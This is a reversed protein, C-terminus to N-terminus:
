EDAGEDVAAGGGRLESIRCLSSLHCFKCTGPKKPDVSANGAAFGRGLNEIVPQWATLAQALENGAYGERTVKGLALLAFHVATPRIESKIAYFPLQPEDPREGEWAKTDLKDSTKYDLIAATGDALRNIRDVKIELRLGGVEVERLQESGTVEFAPGKKETELWDRLLREWRSQELMRAREVSASVQRRGLSADLADSVSRAILAAIEAESSDLLKQQTKLVNWVLELAKHAVTGREKLSIGLEAEDAERANLRHIAFARFPCAAQNKLVSM